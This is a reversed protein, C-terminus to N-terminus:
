SFLKKWWPKNEVPVSIEDRKTPDYEWDEQTFYVNGDDDQIKAKLAEAIQLMKRYLATDPWKTYINGSSWDLWPEEHKSLGLWIASYEGNETNLRLEPDNQIYSLWEEATIQSDDNEFWNEARTIHFEVGM